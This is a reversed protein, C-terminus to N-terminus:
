RSASLRWGLPAMANSALMQREAALVSEVVAPGNEDDKIYDCFYRYFYPAPEETIARPPGGGSKLHKTIADRMQQM